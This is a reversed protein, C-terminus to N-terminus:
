LSSQVEASCLFRIERVMYLINEPSLPSAPVLTTALTSGSAIDVVRYDQYRIFRHQILLLERIIRNISATYVGQSSDPHFLRNHLNALEQIGFAM